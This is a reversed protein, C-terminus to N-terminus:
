PRRLRLATIRLPRTPCRSPRGRPMGAKVDAARIWPALFFCFYPVSTTFRSRARRRLARRDTSHLATPWKPRVRTEAAGAHDFLLPDVPELLLDLPQLGLQPSLLSRCFLFGKAQRGLRGEPVVLVAQGQAVDGTLEIKGLPQEDAAHVRRGIQQLGGRVPQDPVPAEGRDLMGVLGAPTAIAAVPVRVPKERRVDAKKPATVGARAVHGGLHEPLGRVDSRQDDVAIGGVITEQAEDLVAELMEFALYLLPRFVIRAM